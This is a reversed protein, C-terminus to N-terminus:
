SRNTAGWCYVGSLFENFGWISHFWLENAVNKDSVTLAVDM